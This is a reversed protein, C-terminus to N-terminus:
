VRGVPKEKEAMEADGKMSSKGINRPNTVAIAATTKNVSSTATTTMM